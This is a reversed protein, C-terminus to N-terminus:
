RTACGSPTCRSCPLVARLKGRGLGVNNGLFHGRGVDKGTHAGAVVVLEHLVAHDADQGLLGVLRIQALDDLDGDIRVANLLDCVVELQDVGREVARAVTQHGLDQATQAVLVDEALRLLHLDVAIERGDLVRVRLILFAELEGDLQCLLVVNVEDDAGVRIGVAGADHELVLGAVVNGQRAILDAYQEGIVDDGGLFQGVGHRTM